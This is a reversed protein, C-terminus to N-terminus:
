EVGMVACQAHGACCESISEKVAVSLLIMLVGPNAVSSACYFPPGEKVTAWGEFSAFCKM